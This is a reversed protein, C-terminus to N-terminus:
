QRNVEGNPQEPHLLVCAEEDLNVRGMKKVQPLLYKCLIGLTFDRVVLLVAAFLTCEAPEAAPPHSFDRFLAEM